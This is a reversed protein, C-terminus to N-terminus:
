FWNGMILTDYDATDDAGFSSTAEVEITAGNTGLSSVVLPALDEFDPNLTGATSTDLTGGITVNTLGTVPYTFSRVIQASGAQSLSKRDRIMILGGVFKTYYGNSNSDEEMITNGGQTVIGVLDAITLGANIAAILLSNIEPVAAQLAALFTDVTTSYAAPNSTNPASPLPTLSTILTM